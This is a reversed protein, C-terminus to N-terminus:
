QKGFTDGMIYSAEVITKADDDDLLKNLSECDFEKSLSPIIQLALTVLVAFYAMFEM